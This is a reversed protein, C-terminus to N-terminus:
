EQVQVDIDKGFRDSTDLDNYGECHADDYTSGHSVHIDDNRVMQHISWFLLIQYGNHKCKSYNVNDVTYQKELWELYERQIGDSEGISEDYATEGDYDVRYM